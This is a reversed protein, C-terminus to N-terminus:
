HLIPSSVRISSNAPSCDQAAVGYEMQVGPQLDFDDWTYTAGGKGVVAVPDVFQNGVIRRFLAYREVDKEGAAEDPSATWSVVVHNNVGGVTVMTLTPVGPNLPLDGCSRLQMLGINALSTQSNVTRRMTLTDNHINRGHFIGVLNVTVTRISDAWSNAADWFVPLKANSVPVIRAASDVRNYSFLSQGAPIQIGRAVVGVPGDNVRRFLVYEDSKGSTSDVSAWYSVTESFSRSGDSYRYTLDPYYKSSLPLKVQTSVDLAVTLSTPVNPDVYVAQVDSTDNAVLDTNFTVAFRDAQVIKPQPRTIGLAPVMPSVAIGINRLERDVTNQAFRATMQADTRGLDASLGRLQFTFFPVAAGFVLITITLALMLEGVSYGSRRRRLATRKSTPPM